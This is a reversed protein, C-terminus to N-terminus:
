VTTTRYYRRIHETLRYGDGTDAAKAALAEVPQTKSAAVATAGAVAGAGVLAFFGRRRISNSTAAKPSADADLATQASSESVDRM